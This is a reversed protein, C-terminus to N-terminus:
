NFLNPLKFVNIFTPKGYINAFSTPNQGLAVIYMAVYAQGTQSSSAVDVNKRSTPDVPENLGATNSFYIEHNLQESPVFEYRGDSNKYRKLDEQNGGNLVVYPNFLQGTAPFWFELTGEVNKDIFYDVSYYGRASFTNSTPISSTNSPDRLTSFASYDNALSTNVIRMSDETVTSINEGSLYIKYIIIYGSAYYHESPIRQLVVTARTNFEATVLNQELQPLYYFEEIGCTLLCFCALLCLLIKIGFDILKLKM